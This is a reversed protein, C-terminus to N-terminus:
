KLFGAIIEKEAEERTLGLTMLKIIQVGAIKGIAAEHILSADVHNAKIEPIATVTAKDMIIADCESHGACENNGNIKSYFEQVSSGKAVSRSIVDVSSGKGDLDIEFETTAVQNGSTMLKEKILLTANDNVKGNTIRKTFDVGEIQVTDMELTSGEELFVNTVPNIVRDGKGGGSGYHKELYKVTANKGVHFTHIGDHQTHGSGENHIGCGAIIVVDSDEGIYFDNYVIDTLENNDIVVPIYVEEKTGPKIHIDIGSGNEKSVIDVNPTCGRDACAGNVRINYAGSPKDKKDTVLELIKKIINNM